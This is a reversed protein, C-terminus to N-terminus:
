LVWRVRCSACLSLRQWSVTGLGELLLVSHQLCPPIRYPDSSSSTLVFAALDCHNRLRVEDCDHKGKKCRACKLLSNERECVAAVIDTQAKAEASSLGVLSSEAAAWARICRPCLAKCLEPQAELNAPMLLAETIPTNSVKSIDLVM